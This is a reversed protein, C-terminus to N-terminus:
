WSVGEHHALRRLVDEALSLTADRNVRAAALAASKTDGRRISRAADTLPQLQGRARGSRPM